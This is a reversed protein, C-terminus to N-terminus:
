QQDLPLPKATRGAMIAARESPFIEVLLSNAAPGAGAEGAALGVRALVMQWFNNALGCMATAASWVIVSLAIVMRRDGRDAYRAIPFAAIAYFAAFSLIGLTLNRRTTTIAPPVEDGERWCFFPFFRQWNRGVQGKQLL